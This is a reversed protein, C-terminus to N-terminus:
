PQELRSLPLNERKEDGKMNTSESKGKYIRNRERRENEGGGGEGEGEGQEWGEM